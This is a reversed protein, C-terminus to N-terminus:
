KGRIESLPRPTWHVDREVGPVPVGINVVLTDLESLSFYGLESEFGEVLGFFTDDGDFELAYWTWNSYPSFFKVRAVPDAVNEQSYLAPLSARLEQTLLQHKRTTTNTM